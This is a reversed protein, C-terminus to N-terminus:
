RRNCQRGTLDAYWRSWSKVEITGADRLAAVYGVLQQMDGYTWTYTGATAAFDHANIMGVINNSVVGDVDTKAQALSKASGLASVINTHWRMKDDALLQDCGHMVVNTSARATLYGGAEMLDVLDNGWVSQVYPHHLPGDNNIGIGQLYLRTQEMNAYYAAAGLANYSQNSRGHNVFDFLCSPDVYLEKIQAETMHNNTGVLASDIAMSVPMDYHKFLPAIFDYWSKYGDDITWVITPKKRKPMKGFFGIWIYCDTAQSVQAWQFKVRAKQATINTGDGLATLPTGSATWSSAAPKNVSWEGQRAKQEPYNAGSYGGITWFNSYTADGIYAVPGPPFTSSMDYGTFGSVMTAVAVDSRDWAYPMLADAAACGVKCVGSTGAPITIKISPRGNFRVTEDVVVTLAATKDTIWLATSNTPLIELSGAIPARELQSVQKGGIFFKIGGTLPNVVASVASSGVPITAVVSGAPTSDDDFVQADSVSAFGQSVLARVYDVPGTYSQSVALPRGYQDCRGSKIITCQTTEM